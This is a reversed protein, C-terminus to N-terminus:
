THWNFVIGSRPEDLCIGFWDYQPIDMKKQVSRLTIQIQSSVSIDSIFINLFSVDAYSIHKSQCLTRLTALAFASGSRIRNLSFAIYLSM